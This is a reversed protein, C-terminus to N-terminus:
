RNWREGRLCRGNLTLVCREADQVRGVVAFTVGRRVDIQSFALPVNLIVRNEAHISLTVIAVVQRDDCQRVFVVLVNEGLLNLSHLLHCHLWRGNLREILCVVREVDLPFVPKFGAVISRHDVVSAVAHCAVTVDIQSGTQLRIYDDFIRRVLTLM